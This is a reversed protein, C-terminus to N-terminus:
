FDRLLACRYKGLLFDYWLLRYSYRRSRVPIRNCKEAESFTYSCLKTTRLVSRVATDNSLSPFRPQDHNELFSATGFLGNKYAGQSTTVVEALASLNGFQTQFGAVLPFWTPYDLVSDLVELRPCHTLRQQFSFRSVRTAQSTTPKTTSFRGSQM